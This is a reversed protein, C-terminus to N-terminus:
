AAMGKGEYLADFAGQYAERIAHRRIKLTPTLQANALSFPETAVIFRRIREVPPLDRNVRAVADGLAKHFGPDRALTELGGPVAHDRAYAAAFDPDPVIVAVLYPRRDGTVMAQAIEPALTLAGEVRAPAIMDGGSNKIFDRKRDTIRLYGDPDLRGIDGTHLWGGALTRATAEPDNWYGKMVNDGAILIEGDDAIRVAVGDLPPGVTDIRIKDPPNCCVVPAAETQGYGQLLTVGLALFFSGIDPNLPAGGSVMAKLRGGFRARVKHRVLKELTPDLLREGVSLAQGALRKRGIAVAQEFLRRKMGRERQIGSRIRQHLTEYLRPVATMITPRVELLNSALTEAGEAFYIQAGISIPFMLGATHEYSHSLPLFSLFVEDGLGLKELLRYAGRCNGIINRHSLMVGKPVGGTGSTYILCATDDPSLTAIRREVAGADGSNQSLLDDWRHVAVASPLTDPPEIAIVSRVSPVLEAAPILHKALVATSVIAVRAGSNGLIHRHDEVTNTVYAPVTVAGAGMIALDAVAWEPRNESVLAVRDGPEVGLAALGQALHLVSDAAQLWTLAQYVRDRKAWLFPADGRQRAVELFMAPLSRCSEYDM